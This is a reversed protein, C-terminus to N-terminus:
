ATKERRVTFSFKKGTHSAASSVMATVDFLNPQTTSLIMPADEAISSAANKGGSLRFANSKLETFLHNYDAETGSMLTITTTYIPM